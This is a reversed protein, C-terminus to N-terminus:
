EVGAEKLKRRLDSVMAVDLGTFDTLIVLSSKAFRGHLDDVIEKKEEIKM